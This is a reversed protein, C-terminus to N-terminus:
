ARRRPPRPRTGRSAQRLSPRRGCARRRRRSRGAHRPRSQRSRRSGSVACSRRWASAAERLCRGGSANRESAGGLWILSLADALAAATPEEEPVVVEVLLLRGDRGIAQRVRRLIRIADDDNWDRPPSRVFFAIFLGLSQMPGARSSASRSRGGPSTIPSRSSRRSTSSSRVSAASSSRAFAPPQLPATRAWARIM